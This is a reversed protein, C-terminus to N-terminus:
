RYRKMALGKALGLLDPGSFMERCRKATVIRQLERQQESTIEIPIAAPMIGVM